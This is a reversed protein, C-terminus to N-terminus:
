ETELVQKLEALTSEADEDDCSLTVTDGRVAGLTMLSLLSAADVPEAGPKCIQVRRGTQSVAQAFLAAPRAHLGDAAAIVADMTPM